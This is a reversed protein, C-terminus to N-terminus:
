DDDKDKDKKGVGDIIRREELIKGCVKCYKYEASSQYPDGWYLIEWKDVKDHLCENQLEVIQEILKADMKVWDADLGEKLLDEMKREYQKVLNKVEKM